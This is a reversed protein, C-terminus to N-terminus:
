LINTGSTSFSGSLTQENEYYGATTGSGVKITHAVNGSM